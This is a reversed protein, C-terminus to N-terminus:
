VRERKRERQRQRTHGESVRGEEWRWGLRQNGGRKRQTERDEPVKGERRRRKKEGLQHQQHITIRDESTHKQHDQKTEVGEEEM